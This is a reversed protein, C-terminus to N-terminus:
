GCRRSNKACCPRRTMTCARCRSGHAIQRRRDKGPWRSLSGTAAQLASSLRSAGSTTSTRTRLQHFVKLVEGTIELKDDAYFRMRAGHILERMMREVTRNTWTSNAVSFRHEVGLAKVMKRVVRNRSHTTNDSVWTTPAGSTACWRVLEEVTGNATCARSPRLWTYGSMDELIVLVYQFGDAADIGADM